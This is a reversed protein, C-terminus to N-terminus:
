GQEGKHPSSPSRCRPRLIAGTACCRNLTKYRCKERRQHSRWRSNKVPCIHRYHGVLRVMAVSAEPLNSEHHVEGEALAHLVVVLLAPPRAPVALRAAAHYKVARRVHRPLRGERTLVPATLGESRQVLHDAVALYWVEKAEVKPPFTAPPPKTSPVSNAASICQASRYRQACARRQERPLCHLSPPKALDVYRPTDASAQSPQQVEYGHRNYSPKGTGINSTCRGRHGGEVGRRGEKGM